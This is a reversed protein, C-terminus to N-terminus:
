LWEKLLPIIDDISNVGKIEIGEIENKPINRMPVIIKTFGLSKAERIREEGKLVPRVAGTLDMEGFCALGESLPKDTLSSIISLVIPLDSATEMIKAGGVANVYVDHEQLNLGAHKKLVAILMNLRNRDLGVASRFPNGFKSETTLAQVEMLLPRKGEQSVFVCAGEFPKRDMSLFMESPNDVDKLGESTMQFAGIESTSGFRNKAARAIRYISDKEGELSITADVLHELVKPGAMSGDKTIHGVLIITTGTGKAIRNLYAACERIQSVTGPASALDESYAVQISDIIVLKPKYENIKQIVNSIECDALGQVNSMPLKLRIGRESVQALSEEGTVYIVRDTLSIHSATQLLLTSKGAGPEGSILVLEGIVLGGGLVRDFEKNGTSFRKRDEAEIKSLSTLGSSNSNNDVWSKNDKNAPPIKIKSLKNKPEDSVKEEIMTNWEGCEKCQGAWRPSISGCEQCVFQTKNKGAM